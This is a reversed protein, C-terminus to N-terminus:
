PRALPRRGPTRGPRTGRGVLRVGARRVLTGLVVGVAAGVLVDSPWHVGAVVRSLAVFVALVWAWPAGIAAALAFANAAHASPMSGVDACGFPALVDELAVCPRPRGVLPKLVRVVLLDSAATAVLAFVLPWWRRRFGGWLLVMGVLTAIGWPGHVFGAAAAMWPAAVLENLHRLLVEDM